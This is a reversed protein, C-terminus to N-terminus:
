KVGQAGTQSDPAESPPPSSRMGHSETSREPAGSRPAAPPPPRHLGPGMTKFNWTVPTLVATKTAKGEWRVLYTWQVTDAEPASLTTVLKDLREKDQYGIVNKTFLAPDVAAQTVCFVVASPNASSVITYPRFEPPAFLRYKHGVRVKFETAPSEPVLLKVDGRVSIEFALLRGETKSSLNFVIAQGDKVPQGTDEPTVELIDRSLM